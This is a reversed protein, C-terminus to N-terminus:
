RDNRPRELGQPTSSSQQYRLPSASITVIQDADSLARRAIGAEVAAGPGQGLVVSSVFTFFVLLVPQVRERKFVLGSFRMEVKWKRARAILRGNNPLLTITGALKHHFSM